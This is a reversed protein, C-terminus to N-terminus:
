GVLLYDGTIAFSPPVPPTANTECVMRLDTRSSPRATLANGALDKWSLTGTDWVIHFSSGTPLAGLSLTYSNGAPVFLQRGWAAVVPEADILDM